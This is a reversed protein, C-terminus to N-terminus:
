NKGLIIRFPMRFHWILKLMDFSNRKHKRRFILRHKIASPIGWIASVYALLITKIVNWTGSTSFFPGLVDPSSHMLGIAVIYRWLTTFPLAVLLLVPFNKVALWIRNREVWFIKKLSYAGGTMSYYHVVKAKSSVAINWGAWLLRLCLDTDECYAFFNEDFYGVEDLASKRILCACGSIAIVQQNSNVSSVPTGRMRQRSMGDVAIGVGFSDLVAQNNGDIILSGVAGIKEDSEAVEVLSVIWDPFAVADNNLLAIYEGKAIRFGANNGGAFGLNTELRITKVAPFESQILKCLNEQSGNDVVIIEISPYSQVVLSQLCRKLLEWRDLSVVVISVLPYKKEIASKV